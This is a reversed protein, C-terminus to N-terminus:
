KKSLLIDGKLVKQPFLRSENILLSTLKIKNDNNFISIINKDICDNLFQNIYEKKIKLDTIFFDDSYFKRIKELEIDERSMKQLKKRRKNNGNISNILNDLSILGGSRFKIVSFDKKPKTNAFPLNLVKANVKPGKYETIEPDQYFISRQKELVIENLVFTKEKLHIKLIEKSLTNKSILFVKNELNIHSFILSDGVKVPIEFVGNSNSITGIKTTSNVVHVDFMPISDLTTIGIISTRKEQATINIASFIFLCLLLLKKMVVFFISSGRLVRNVSNYVETLYFLM